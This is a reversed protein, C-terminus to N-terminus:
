MKIKRKQTQTKAPGFNPDGVGMNIEGILENHKRFFVLQASFHSILLYKLQKSILHLAM